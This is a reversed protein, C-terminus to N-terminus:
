AARVSAVFKEVEVKLHGSERSLAQASNLVQASATGTENAGRNVDTINTAVQATGQAAQHVNRSIEQTAAGQEEVAAAITAAIEAIRGITGGIEKIAGVSDQTATQMAAIQTGIEDTAKATQSALAKVESAVVAFGRGAEGARAAEITANLALLNTQEAIATIMKVVDGIRSAASSLETIRADTKQAQSVAEAAIRSSEQVQRGIETVSGSMEEAASAVSQVNASAEESAATVMGALQQTTDATKTLTRAAAELEGSAGSVAGVIGGVAAQFEDALKRMEDKRQAAAKGESEQQEVRLRNAEVMSSKFALTANGLAGIEDRREGFSVEASMDGGALKHMADQIKSLPRTVRRSVLMMMGAAFLVAFVLLALQAVLSSMAGARKGAAHDKAADLAADAVALVTTLKPVAIPTWTAVTYGPPQGAIVAKYVKLREDTYDKSFFERNANAMAETFKAPLPLMAAIEGIVAWVSEVKSLLATYKIMPEPLLPVGNLPNSVMVSLDGANHRVIWALQKLEMLQDVYPDQLIILKTLETALKDLMDIMGTTSDIFEKALAADRASKPQRLAAESDQHLSTLKKVAADLNSLAAQRGPFDITEVSALAAKLAPMMAGRPTTIAPTLTTLVPEAQLARPTMTRDLRLNHLSTFIEASASAVNAIREASKLRTWSDWSGAVLMAVVACALAGIVSKLLQNVSLKNM